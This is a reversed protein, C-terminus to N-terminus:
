ETLPEILTLCKEFTKQKTKMIYTEINENKKKAACSNCYIFIIEHYNLFVFVM